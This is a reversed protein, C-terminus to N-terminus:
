TSAGLKEVGRLKSSRSRPNSAVEAESPTQPKKTLNRVLGQEEWERFQQKVIRDELSHFSIVAIRGNEQLLLLSKQLAEELSHLEDNVAIRLAQFVRTAPHIKEKAYPLAVRIIEALERTSEIPKIQRARIINDAITRAFREEGLKTFLEYLEGKSLANILDGAKVKLNQDMRMDLPGQKQLSFGREATDFQHSSVGLDFLVGAISNIGHEKALQDIDRFNGRALILDVGVKFKANQVTLQNEAWVLADEDADIGLVKGGRRLIETTHGGGGLTADIYWSGPTVHLLDVAEQLLVSTHYERRNEM